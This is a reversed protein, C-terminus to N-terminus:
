KKTKILDGITLQDSKTKKIQLKEPELKEILRIDLKNELKAATKLDPILDGSEIKQMVSERESVYKSFEKQNMGLAERKQKILKGANEVVFEEAEQQISEAKKKAQKEPQKIISIVRGYKGCPSCVNLIVGEIDARYLQGSKGCM